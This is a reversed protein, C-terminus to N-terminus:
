GLHLAEEEAEAEEIERPPATRRAGRWLFLGLSGLLFLLAGQLAVFGAIKLFALQPSVFRVLWGAGEELLASTFTFVIFATKAARGMPVFILLHTLLLLVLAMMPLHMHTTELMSASSRPARFDEESGNYYAAVSAPRLDMRSFYMAFNTVWFAVLLILTLGLTLRMLPQTEMGGNKLYKM